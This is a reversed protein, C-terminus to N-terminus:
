ENRLFFSDLTTQQAEEMMLRRLALRFKRCVSSLEQGSGGVRPAGNELKTAADMMAALSIHEDDDSDGDEEVDDVTEGGTGRTVEEVIEEDTRVRVEEEEKEGELEVFENATLVGQFLRNRKKLMGISRGLDVLAENYELLHNDSEEPIPPPAPPMALKSERLKSIAEIANNDPECETVAKLAPRWDEDNYQNKFLAQLEAEAQPLTMDSGSAFRFIISWGQQILTPAPLHITIPARQIGAHNWCNEITKPTVDDWAAAAMQLVQLLNIKYIDAEGLEDRQLANKCFRKRYHAKFCRIIGADLPQVWPTLNPAFYVMKVNTPEYDIYHGSFNDLLLCVHRNQRQM